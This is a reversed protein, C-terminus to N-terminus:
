LRLYLLVSFAPEGTAGGQYTATNSYALAAQLVSTTTPNPMSASLVMSGDPQQMNQTTGDCAYWASVGPSTPPIMGIWLQGPPQNGPGWEMAAGTWVSIHDYDTTWFTAGADASTLPPIGAGPHAIANLASSNLQMVGSQFQWAIGVNIYLFGRDNEYLETGTAWLLPNYPNTSLVSVRAAHTCVIACAILKVEAWAEGTWETVEGTDTARYIFGADTTKLDTPRASAPGSGFSQELIWQMAGGKAASVYYRALRTTDTEWYEDGASKGSAPVNNLRNQHTGITLPVEVGSSAQQIARLRDNLIPIFQPSEATVGAPIQLVPAANLAPLAPM